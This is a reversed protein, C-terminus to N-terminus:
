LWGMKWAVIQVLAVFVTIIIFVPFFLVWLTRKVSKSGFLFQARRQPLPLYSDHLRGYQAVQRPAPVRPM